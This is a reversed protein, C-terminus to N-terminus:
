IIPVPEVLVKRVYDNIDTATDSFGDGQTYFFQLGRAINFAHKKINCMSDNTINEPKLVEWNLGKFSDDVVADIYKLADEETCEPNDKMYCAVSSAVEGRAKETRFTKADGRLRTTLGVLRHFRSPMDIERLIHETLPQNLLLICHLTLVRLGSSNIGNETYEEMTPVYEDAIWEAEQLYAGIYVEWARRIYNLMERGQTNQAQSALENVAEYLVKFSIRMYEPLGEMMSLDWRRVAETFLKLEDVTGYTDYIDDIITELTAVKALAIRFTSFGPEPAVAAGWLYYEVHRHRAFSLDALGSERWWRSVLQMEKQHSSQLMNFELKALELCKLRFENSSTATSQGAYADIFSRAELRPLNNRWPYDLAYRVEQLISPSVSVQDTRKAAVQKLFNATFFKAEDMVNEGEFAVLSARFLNLMSRIIADGDGEGESSQCCYYHGNEDRFNQLVDDPSVHYRHLRLIRLGLATTDLDTVASNRGRGIGRSENWYRYVYEVALKIEKEFHRDIGMREVDDVLLLHDLLDNDGEGMLASFIGKIEKILTDRALESHAEHEYAPTPLSQVLRDDWLNPHHNGTRRSVHLNSSEDSKTKVHSETLIMSVSSTSVAIRAPLAQVSTLYTLSPKTFIFGFRRLDSLQTSSPQIAAIPVALRCRADGCGKQRRNGKNLALLTGTMASTVEM